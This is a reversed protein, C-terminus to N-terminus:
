GARDGPEGDPDGHVHDDEEADDDDGNIQKEIAKKFAAELEEDGAERAARLQEQLVGLTGPREIVHVEKATDGDEEKTAALLTKLAQNAPIRASVKGRQEESLDEQLLLEIARDALEDALGRDVIRRRIAAGIDAGKKRGGPNASKGKEWLKAAGPPRKKFRGKEDLCDKHEERPDAPEDAM